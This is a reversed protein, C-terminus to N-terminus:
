TLSKLTTLVNRLTQGDLDQAVGGTLDFNAEESMAFELQAAAGEPTAATTKCIRHEIEKARAWDPNGEELDPAGPAFLRALISRHESVWAPHPDAYGEAAASSVQGASRLLAELNAKCVVSYNTRAGREGHPVATDGLAKAQAILTGLLRTDEAPNASASLPSGAALAVAPGSLVLTRRDIM